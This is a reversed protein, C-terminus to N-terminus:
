VKKKRAQAISFKQFWTSDSGPGTRAVEVDILFPTGARTAEIGRKLAPRLDAPREVRIGDCGQSRALGVFDILPNDLIMGTFRNAAMMRGNYSAFGKRVSEYCHNNSVVTLIPMQYRAMTWFGAASFMVAGDGIDLVVQRDPTAIKAGIAAGPGWGLCLGRNSVWMKEDERPGLNLFLPSSQQYEHVVICNRDLEQDMVAAVEDPHIPSRGVHEKTLKAAKNGFDPEQGKRGAAIQKIRARTAMGKITDILGRVAIKTNAVMAITFPHVRGLYDGSTSCYIMPTDEKMGFRCQGPLNHIFGLALVLDKGQASYVGAYLPHKHPFNAYISSANYNVDFCSVLPFPYDCAPISLLEALELVEACAGDKTVQDGLWMVPAKASLLAKAAEKLTEPDPSIENPIIFNERDYILATVNKETQAGESFALYVPGGPETTAVKFARRIQTPLARADRSQWSIKTFQRTMDKLDWGPRAALVFEDSLSENERMGATVVLPTGDVHSNYLQGLAQATAVVHVNIFAPEHSVKAYGDAASVVIGEHMGLILQMPQDLFADFFGVEFSGPNTFLYKVGAAKMQEVILQGGTGTFSRAKLPAIGKEVAEASKLMSSIGATSVGMAGLTKIFSRRSISHDLLQNLIVNITGNTDM